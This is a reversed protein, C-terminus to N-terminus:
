ECRFHASERSPLGYIFAHAINDGVVERSKGCITEAGIIEASHGFFIELLASTDQRGYM